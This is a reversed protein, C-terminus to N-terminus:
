QMGEQIKSTKNLFKSNNQHTQMQIHSPVETKFSEINDRPDTCQSKLYLIIHPPKKREEEHRNPIGFAEYEQINV